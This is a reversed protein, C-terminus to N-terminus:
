PDDRFHPALFKSQTPRSFDELRVRYDVDTSFDHRDNWYVRNADSSVYGWNLITFTVGHVLPHYAPRTNDFEIPLEDIRAIGFDILAKPSVYIRITVPPFELAGSIARPIAVTVLWVAGAGLVLFGMERSSPQFPVGSLAIAALTAAVAGVTPINMTFARGACTGRGCWGHAARRLNYVDIARAPGLCITTM